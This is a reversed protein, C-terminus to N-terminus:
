GPGRAHGSDFTRRLRESRLRAIELSIEQLMSAVLHPRYGRADTRSLEDLAQGVLERLKSLRDM